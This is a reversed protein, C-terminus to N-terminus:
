NIPMNRSIFEMWELPTGNRRIYETAREIVMRQKLNWDNKYNDYIEKIERDTLSLITKYDEIMPDMLIVGRHDRLTGFSEELAMLKRPLTMRTWMNERCIRITHEALHVSGFDDQPEYIDVDVSDFDLRRRVPLRAQFPPNPPTAIFAPHAYQEPTLEPPTAIFAPTPESSVFDNTIQKHVAMLLNCIQLYDNEKINESNNDILNMVEKLENTM